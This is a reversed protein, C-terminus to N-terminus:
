QTGAKACGCCLNGVLATFIAVFSKMLCLLAAFPMLLPKFLDSWDIQHGMCATIIPVAVTLILGTLPSLILRMVNLLSVLSFALAGLFAQSVSAEAKKDLYHFTCIIGEDRTMGGMKSAWNDFLFGEPEFILELSSSLRIVNEISM